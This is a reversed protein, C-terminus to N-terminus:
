VEDILSEVTIGGGKSCVIGLRLGQVPLWARGLFWLRVAELPRWSRVCVVGGVCCFCPGAGAGVPPGRAWSNGHIFSFFDDFFHVFGPAAGVAAVAAAEGEGADEPKVVAPSSDGM